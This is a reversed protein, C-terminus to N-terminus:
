LDEIDALDRTRGTAGENPIFAERGIV